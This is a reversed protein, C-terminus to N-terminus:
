ELIYEISDRTYIHVIAGFNYLALMFLKVNCVSYSRWIVIKLINITHEYMLLIFLIILVKRHYM